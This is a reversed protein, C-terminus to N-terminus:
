ILGLLRVDKDDHAIIDAPKVRTTVVVAHHTVLRRVDVADCLFARKKVGPIRLLAASGAPCSEDGPLLGDAGSEGFNTCGARIYAQARFVRGNRFKEFRQTIRGPLEALVV